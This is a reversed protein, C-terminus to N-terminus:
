QLYSVGAISDMTCPGGLDDAAAVTGGRSSGEFARFNTITYQQGSTGDCASNNYVPTTGDTSVGIVACDIQTQKRSGSVHCAAVRIDLADPNCMYAANVGRSTNLTVGEGLLSCAFGDTAGDKDVTKGSQFYTGAASASLSVGLGAVILMVRAIKNM